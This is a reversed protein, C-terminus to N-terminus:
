IENEVQLFSMFTAWCLVEWLNKSNDSTGSIGTFLNKRWLKLYKVNSRFFRFINGLLFRQISLMLCAIHQKWNLLFFCSCSCFSMGLQGEKHPEARWRQVYAGHLRKWPLGMKSGPGLASDSGMKKTIWLELQSNMETQWYCCIQFVNRQVTVVAFPDNHQCGGYLLHSSMSYVSSLVWVDCNGIFLSGSFCKSHLFSGHCYFIGLFGLVVALSFRLKRVAWLNM